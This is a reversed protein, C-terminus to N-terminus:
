LRGYSGEELRKILTRRFYNIIVEDRVDLM